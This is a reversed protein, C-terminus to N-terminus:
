RVKTFVRDWRIGGKKFLDIEKDRSFWVFAAKGVVHDEPVFGWYRSDLSNHRNDGMLWYYNFKFTYFETKEGNIFIDGGKKELTNGEYATIARTYYDLNEKTLPLKDGRKPIYLPGFNDKTWTNDKTNPFVARFNEKRDEVPVVGKIKDLGSLTEAQGKTLFYVQNNGQSLGEIRDAYNIGYREKLTKQMSRTIANEFTVIYMFQVNTYQDQLKSDVYLERDKVEITEGAIAVCRKVYNEKKDTPRVVMGGHAKLLSTHARNLLKQENKEFNGENFGALEYAKARKMAHYSRDQAEVLVTDGEPFNFVVADGREVDSWGPLRNYGLKMWELYAKTNLIPMTHHALPFALPTMPIRSGYKLKNVFLYDGVLMSEEMSPTPITFAEFTFTRIIFAAILAFLIADGWERATSKKRVNWDINGTYVIEDKKAMLPLLYFPAVVALITSKADRQGFSWALQVHMITLMLFGVGPILLILVWWWPRETIKQWEIFNWGPVYGATSNGGAKKFLAPLSIFWSIITLILLILPITITM